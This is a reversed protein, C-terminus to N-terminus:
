VMSQSNLAIMLSWDTEDESDGEMNRLQSTQAPIRTTATNIAHEVAVSKGRRKPVMGSVNFVRGGQNLLEAPHNSIPIPKSTQLRSQLSLFKIRAISRRAANRGGHSTILHSKVSPSSLLLLTHALRQTSKICGVLAGGM